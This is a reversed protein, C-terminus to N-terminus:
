RQDCNPYCGAVSLKDIFPHVRGEKPFEERYFQEVVIIEERIEEISKKKEEKWKWGELGRGCLRLDIEREFPSDFEEISNEKWGHFMFDEESWWEHTAWGDRAFAGFRRYIRIKGPWIRRAGLAMRVCVVVAMYSEYDTANVWYEECAHYEDICEPILVELLLMMLAGQDNGHWSDPLRFEYNALDRLFESGFRSNKVLYNGAMIEWNFIREYLIVDVSDDIWEEICHNPNVVGTDADLVLMWDTEPLYLAVACHKRFFVEDHRGCSRLVRPDSDLDIVLLTYNTSKIYCQITRQAVEYMRPTIDGSYAIFVTIKGFLPLCEGMNRRRAYKVDRRKVVQTDHLSSIPSRNFEVIVIFAVFLLVIFIARRRFSMKAQTSVISVFPLITRFQGETVLKRKSVQLLM